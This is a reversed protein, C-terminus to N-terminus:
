CTEQKHTAASKNNIGVDCVCIFVSDREKLRIMQQYIQARATKKGQGGIETKAPERMSKGSFVSPVTRITFLLIYYRSM